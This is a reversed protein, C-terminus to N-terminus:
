LNATLTHAVYLKSSGDRMNPIELSNRAAETKHKIYAWAIKFFHKIKCKINYGIGAIGRKFFHLNKIFFFIGFHSLSILIIELCAHACLSNFLQKLININLLKTCFKGCLKFGCCALFSHTNKFPKINNISEILAAILKFPHNHINDGYNRGINARHNLKVAASKGCGIKIIKVSSDYVSIVAKFPEKLKACGINNYSVFLSHKLLSNIGKDIVASSAARYCAWAIARKFRKGIHKFTLLTTETLVKETLTYVIGATGNDNYARLKFHM